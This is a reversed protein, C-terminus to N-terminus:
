ASLLLARVLRGYAEPTVQDSAAWVSRIEDDNLIRDRSLEKLTLRTMGSIIPSKFSDDRREHWRFASGLLSLVKDSTRAGKTDAIGDLM